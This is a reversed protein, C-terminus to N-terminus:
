DDEPDDKDGLLLAAPLGIPNFNAAVVAFDDSRVLGDGNADGARYKLGPLPSFNVSVLALDTSDVKADGNLDGRLVHFQGALSEALNIGTNNVVSTRSIEFTYRGNPFVVRDFNWWLQNTGDGSLTAATLDIQNGTTSDRIILAAPSTITVTQDFALSLSEVGSRNHNTVEGNIIESRPIFRPATGVSSSGNVNSGVLVYIHTDAHVYHNFREDGVLREEIFSFSGLITILDSPNARVFLEGSDSIQRINNADIILRDIVAVDLNPQNRLDISEIGSFKGSRLDITAARWNQLKLTDTGLGGVVTDDGQYYISDDGSGGDLLDGGIGGRLVDNGADGYLKDDGSNGFLYDDGEGGYLVDNGLAGYLLDIGAMGNVTDNGESSYILETEDSGIVTETPGSAITIRDLTLLTGDALRPQISNRPHQSFIATHRDAYTAAALFGYAEFADVNDAYSMMASIANMSKTAYDGPGYGFAVVNAGTDNIAAQVQSWTTFTFGESSNAPGHSADEAFSDEAPMQYIGGNLPDIGLDSSIFRGALANAQWNLITAADSFGRAVLTGFTAALYDNQWLAVYGYRGANYRDNWPRSLVGSLMGRPADEFITDSVFSENVWEINNQIISVFHPKLVATDPLLFAADGLTRMAWAFGRVQQFALLDKTDSQWRNAPWVNAITWSAQASLEDAFYHDGTFLYPVYSLSPQHAVDPIFGVQYDFVDAPLADNKYDRSTGRSDLWVLPHNNIDLYTGTTADIFHWPVSGSVRGNGLLVAFDRYDQTLIYRAAWDPLPGIDSREGPDPMLNQVTGRGMPGFGMTDNSIGDFTTQDIAVPMSLDYQPVAGTSLLYGTDQIVHLTPQNGSWILQSWNSNRAHQMGLIQLNTQDNQRVLIGYTLNRNGSSFTPTENLLIVNTRISGDKYFRIDFRAALGDGVAEEVRVEVAFQGAMWLSVNGDAVAKELLKRADVHITPAKTGNGMNIAYPISTGLPAGSLWVKDVTTGATISALDVTAHLGNPIVELNKLVSDVLRGNVVKSGRVTLQLPQSQNEAFRLELPKTLNYLTNVHEESANPSSLDRGSAYVLWDGNGQDIGIDASLQFNSSLINQPVMVEPSTINSKVLVVDIASKLSTPMSPQLEPVFFTLLAHKVSGDDYRAKVDLQVETEVQGIKAAIGSGAPVDGQKFVHGITVFGSSSTTTDTNQVRLAVIAQSINSIDVLSDIVNQAIVTEVKVPTQPSRPDPSPGDIFEKTSTDLKGDTFVIFEVNTASSSGTGDKDFVNITGTSEFRLDFELFPKYLFLYDIGIGGDVTNHGLQPYLSDNGAGGILTDNGYDGFLRDDGDGGDLVDNGAGGNLQDNGADGYLYDNGWQGFLYDNGEGGYAIDDTWIGSNIRDDGAGGCVRGPGGSVSILDSGGLGFVVNDTPTSVTLSDALETGVIGFPTINCAFSTLLDRRELQEVIARRQLLM